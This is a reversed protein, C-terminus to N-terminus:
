LFFHADLIPLYDLRPNYKEEVRYGHSRIEDLPISGRPKEECFDCVYTAPVLYVEDQKVIDILFFAIAGLKLVARLHKVQQPAINALPFSTSSHTSKAEFDIYKGRYIGNYDTTSPEQFYAETIKAGKQYDVKVIHVPTPKKHIVAIGKELYYDNTANIAAEFAMGRNGVAIKPRIRRKTKSTIERSNTPAKVGAPYHIKM